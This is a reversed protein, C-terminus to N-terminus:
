PKEMGMHTIFVRDEKGHEQIVVTFTKKEQQITMATQRGLGSTHSLTEPQYKGLENSYFEVVTDFPDATSLHILEGEPMGSMEPGQVSQEPTSAPYRPVDQFSLEKNSNGCGGICCTLLCVIIVAIISPKMIKM